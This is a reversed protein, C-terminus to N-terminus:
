GRYSSLFKTLVVYRRFETAIDLFDFFKYYLAKRFDQFHM